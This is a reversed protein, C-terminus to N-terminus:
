IKYKGVFSLTGSYMSGGENTLNIDEVPVYKSTTLGGGADGQALYVEYVPYINANDSAYTATLTGESVSLTVSTNAAVATVTGLRWFTGTWLFANNAGRGLQASYLRTSPISVVAGGSATVSTPTLGKSWDIAYFSTLSGGVSEIFSEIQRYERSFINDYEYKLTLYPEAKKRTQKFQSEFTSILTTYKPSSGVKLNPEFQKYGIGGITGLSSAATIDGMPFLKSM